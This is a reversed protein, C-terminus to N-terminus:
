RLYITLEKIITVAYLKVIQQNNLIIPYLRYIIGVLLIISQVEIYYIRMGM